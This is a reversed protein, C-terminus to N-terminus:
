TKYRGTDEFYLYECMYIYMYPIIYAYANMDYVTM